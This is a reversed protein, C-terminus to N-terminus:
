GIQRSYFPTLISSGHLTSPAAPNSSSSGSEPFFVPFRTLNIIQRDAEVQAFDTNITLDATLTPSIGAQCGGGAKADRDSAEVVSDTGTGTIVRETAIAQGLLYPRLELDRGRHVEGFGTLYRGRDPQLIGPNTGLIAM